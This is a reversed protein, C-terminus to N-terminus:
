SQHYLFIFNLLCSVTKCTVKVAPTYHLVIEFIVIKASAIRSDIRKAIPVYGEKPLFLVGCEVCTNLDDHTGIDSTNKHTTIGCNRM